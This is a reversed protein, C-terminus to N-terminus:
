RRVRGLRSVTVTETALGRAVILRANAAGYGLGVPSWAISDRTTSLRVGFVAGLDHVAVTETGAVISLRAGATDMLLATRHSRRVAHDRADLMARVSQAAAGEAALRDQAARFPPLAVVAALGLLVLALLLEPLSVGPRGGLSSHRAPM